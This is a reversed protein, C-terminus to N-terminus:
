FNILMVNIKIILNQDQGYKTPLRFKFRPGFLSNGCLLHCTEKRQSIQLTLFFM